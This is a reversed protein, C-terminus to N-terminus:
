GSYIRRMADLSDAECESPNGPRQHSFESRFNGDRSRVSRPALSIRGEDLEEWRDRKKEDINRGAAIDAPIEVSSLELIRMRSEAANRVVNLQDSLDDAASKKQEIDKEIGSIEEALDERSKLFRRVMLSGVAIKDEDAIIANLTRDSIVPSVGPIRVSSIGAPLEVFGSRKVKARDEFLTVQSVPLMAKIEDM